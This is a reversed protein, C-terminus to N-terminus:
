DENTSDGPMTNDDEDELENFGQAIEPGFAVAGAVFLATLVDGTVGWTVPLLLTGFAIYPHNKAFSKADSVEVM